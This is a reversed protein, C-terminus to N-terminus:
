VGVENLFGELLPMDPAEKLKRRWAALARLQEPTYGLARGEAEAEETVRGAESFLRRGVEMKDLVRIVLPDDPLGISGARLGEIVVMAPHQPDLHAQLLDIVRRAQTGLPERAPTAEVRGAPMGGARWAQWDHLCWRRFARGAPTGAFFALTEAGARSVLRMDQLGGATQVKVVQTEAPGFDDPHRRIINRIAEKSNLGLPDLLSNSGVWIQGDRILGPIAHEQYSLTTTLANM